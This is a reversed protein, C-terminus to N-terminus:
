LKEISFLLMEDQTIFVNSSLSTTCLALAVIVIRFAHPGLLAVSAADDCCHPM